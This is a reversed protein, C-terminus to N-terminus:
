RIYRQFITHPLSYSLVLVSRAPEIIRSLYQSFFVQTFACLILKNKPVNPKKKYTRFYFAQNCGAHGSLLFMSLDTIFVYFSLVARHPHTEFRYHRGLLVSSTLLHLHPRDHSLRGGGLTFQTLHTLVKVFM